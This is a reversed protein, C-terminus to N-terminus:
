NQAFRHSLKRWELIHMHSQFLNVILKNIKYNKALCKCGTNGIMSM